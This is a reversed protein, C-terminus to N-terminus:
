VLITNLLSTHKFRIKREVGTATDKIRINKITYTADAISPLEPTEGNTYDCKPGSLWSMGEGKSTWLQVLIAVRGDLPFGGKIPVEAENPTSQRFLTVSKEGQTLTTSFGKLYRDDSWDFTVRVDYDLKTDILDGNGYVCKTDGAKACGPLASESTLSLANGFHDVWTQKPHSTMKQGSATGLGCYFLNTYDQNKVWTSSNADYWSGVDDTLPLHCNVANSTWDNANLDTVPHSTTRFGCLNSEGLDMEPCWLNNGTGDNADCYLKAASAPNHEDEKRVWTTYLAGNFQRGLQAVNQTWSIEESRMDLMILNDSADKLFMRPQKTGKLIITDNAASWGGACDPIDNTKMNGGSDVFYGTASKYSAGEGQNWNFESVCQVGVDDMVATAAAASPAAKSTEADLFASVPLALVASLIARPKPM